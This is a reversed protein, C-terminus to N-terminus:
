FHYWVLERLLSWVVSDVHKKRCAPARGVWLRTLVLASGFAAMESRDPRQGPWSVFGLELLQSPFLKKAPGCHAAVPGRRAADLGRRPWVPGAAVVGPRRCRVSKMCPFLLSVAM